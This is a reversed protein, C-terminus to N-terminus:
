AIGLHDLLDSLAARADGGLDGAAYVRTAGAGILAARLEDRRTEDLDAATCM